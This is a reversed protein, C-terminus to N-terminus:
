RQLDLAGALCNHDTLTVFDMGQRIAAQYVTEPDTYSEAAGLRQLFWESPHDSHRSHVHLDAKRM